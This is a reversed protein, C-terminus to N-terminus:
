SPSPSLRGAAPMHFQSDSGAPEESTLLNGGIKLFFFSLIGEGNLLMKTVGSAAELSLYYKENLEEKAAYFRPSCSIM